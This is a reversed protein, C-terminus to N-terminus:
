PVPGDYLRVFISKLWRAQRETPRAGCVLRRVMSAVFERERPGLRGAEHDRCWRAVEVWSGPSSRRVLEPQAEGGYAIAKALTHFDAGAAKLTRQIARVTTVVESDNDSSLMAVLKTIKATIRAPIPLASMM